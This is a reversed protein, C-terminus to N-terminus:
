SLQFHNSDGFSKFNGGWVIPDKRDQCFEWIKRYYAPAFIAEGDESLNFLDLARSEPKGDANIFNHASKPFALKSKGEKVARAQAEADRFAISIHCSPFAAKVATFWDKLMPAAETLKQACLPCVYGANTHHVGMDNCRSPM